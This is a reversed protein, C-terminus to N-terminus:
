LINGDISNLLETPVGSTSPNVNMWEIKTPTPKRFGVSLDLDLTVNIALPFTRVPNEMYLFKANPASTHLAARDKKNENPHIWASFHLV